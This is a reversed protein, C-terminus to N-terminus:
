VDEKFDKHIIIGRQRAFENPILERSEKTHIKNLIIYDQAEKTYISSDWDFDELKKNKGKIINGKIKMLRMFKQAIQQKSERQVDREISYIDQYECSDAIRKVNANLTKLETLLDDPKM